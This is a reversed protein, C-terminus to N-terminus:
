CSKVVVSHKKSVLLEACSGEGPVGVKTRDDTSLRGWFSSSAYKFNEVLGVNPSVKRGSRLAISLAGGTSTYTDYNESM